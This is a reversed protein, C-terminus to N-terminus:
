LSCQLRAAITGWGNRGLRRPEWSEELSAPDVRGQAQTIGSNISQYSQVAPVFGPDQLYLQDYWHSASPARRHPPLQRPPARQM